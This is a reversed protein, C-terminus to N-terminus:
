KYECKKNQEFVINVKGIKHACEDLTARTLADCCYITAGIELTPKFNLNLKKM